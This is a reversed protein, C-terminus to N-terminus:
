ITISDGRSAISVNAFGAAKLASQHALASPDEGHVLFTQLTPSKLPTCYDILEKGDGHASLGTMCEVRANLPVLDGLIPVEKWHDQIKRGLTNEAQFGPLLVTTNTQRIHHKLHHLVRGAECMGSSAIIIAPHTLDNLKMSQQPTPVYLLNPFDFPKLMNRTEDDMLFEFDRFVDTVRSALPSDVYVPLWAPIKKQERLSNLVQVISQTRGLAFAPMIMVGGAAVTENVIKALQIPVQEIPDHRKGGYTCESILLDAHTFPDPDRIVPSHPRGVDGTFVLTKGTATETLAMAASGLIHGADRFELTFGGMDTPQRYEIPEFLKITGLADDQTYLPRIAVQTNRTSKQNLYAADEEQIKASDLLM